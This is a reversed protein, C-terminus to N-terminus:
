KPQEPPLKLRFESATTSTALEPCFNGTAPILARDFYIEYPVTAHDLLRAEHIDGAGTVFTM